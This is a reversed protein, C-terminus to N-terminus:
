FVNQIKFKFKERIHNLLFICREIDIVGEDYKEIEINGKLANLETEVKELENHEIYYALKEYKEKWSNLIEDIKYEINDKNIDEKVLEVKLNELRENIVDVSDNTYAQTIINTMIVVFIVISCIVIEKFM